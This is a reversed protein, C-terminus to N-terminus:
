PIPIASKQLLYEAFLLKNSDCVGLHESSELSCHKNVMRGRAGRPFFCADRWAMLLWTVEGPECNWYHKNNGSCNTQCSISTCSGSNSSLQRAMEKKQPKHRCGLYIIIAKLAPLLCKQIRQSETCPQNPGEHTSNIQTEGNLGVSWDEQPISSGRAM